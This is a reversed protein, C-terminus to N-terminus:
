RKKEVADALALLAQQRASPTSRGWIKFAEKAAAYAEDVDEATANPSRTYVEGTVPSVLDFYESGKSEVYQGNIFNRLMSFGM